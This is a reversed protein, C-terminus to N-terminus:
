NGNGTEIENQQSQTCHTHSGIYGMGGGYCFSMFESMANSPCPCPSKPVKQIKAHRSHHVLCQYPPTSLASLSLKTHRSGAVVVGAEWVGGAVVYGM